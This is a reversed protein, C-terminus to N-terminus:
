REVQHRPDLWFPDFGCFCCLAVWASKVQGRRLRNLAVWLMSAQVVISHLPFYKRSFKLRSTIFFYDSSYRYTKNLRDNVQTSSGEKHLVISDPAFGLKGGPILRKMRTAWDIEEYYLFYEESMLGVKELVSRRVFLSAGVVYDIDDQNFSDVLSRRYPQHGLLHRSSGLWPNYKGGIAQIQSPDDAYLLTSGCIGVEPHVAMYDLLAQLADIDVETDNNLLWAYEMRPDALAIRLGVNNGGAFGLNSGTQVLQIDLEDSMSVYQNLRSWSDDISKNDCVIVKLATKRLRKLSDLCAITDAAGNWNLIIVYVM